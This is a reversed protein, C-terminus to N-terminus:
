CGNAAPYRSGCVEWTNCMDISCVTERNLADILRLPECAASITPPLVGANEIKVYGVLLVVLSELENLSQVVADRKNAGWWLKRLFGQRTRNSGDCPLCNGMYKTVIEDLDRLHESCQALQQAIVKTIRPPLQPSLIIISQVSERLLELKLALRKQEAPAERITTWVKIAGNSVLVIDGLGVGFSMILTALQPAFQQPIPQSTQTNSHNGRLQEGCNFVWDRSPRQWAVM